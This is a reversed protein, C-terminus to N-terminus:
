TANKEEETIPTKDGRDRRLIEEWENDVLHYIIVDDRWKSGYWAKYRYNAASFAHAKTRHVKWRPLRGSIYTAWKYEDPDPPKPAPPTFETM